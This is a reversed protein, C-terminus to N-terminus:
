KSSKLGQRWEALRSDLVPLLKDFSQWTDTVHYTSPLGVALSKEYDKLYGGVKLNFYHQAFANGESSLDDSSLKGDHSAIFHQGPMTLRSKLLAIQDRFTDQNDKSALDKFLAWAMFMGSYTAGAEDPLDTPFEGELHWSVDDYTVPEVAREAPSQRKTKSNKGASNQPAVAAVASSSAAANIAKTSRIEQLSKELIRLDSPDTNFHRDLKSMWKQWGTRKLELAEPTVDRLYVVLDDPIDPATKSIEHRVLGNAQLFYLFYGAKAKASLRSRETLERTSEEPHFGADIFVWDPFKALFEDYNLLTVKKM